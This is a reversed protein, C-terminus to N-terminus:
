KGSKLVKILIILGVLGIGGYLVYKKSICQGGLCYNKVPDCGVCGTNCAEGIISCEDLGVGSVQTCIEGICKNYVEGGGGSCQNANSQKLIGKICSGSSADCIQSYLDVGFCKDNCVIGACKDTGGGTYVITKAWVTPRVFTTATSNVNLHAYKVTLQGLVSDDFLWYGMTDVGVGQGSDCYLSPSGTPSTEQVYIRGSPGGVAIQHNHGCAAGVISPKADIKARISAKDSHSGACLNFFNTHMFVLAPITDSILSWNFVNPRTTCEGGDGCGILALQIGNFTKVVNDSCGSCTGGEHNGALTYVTKSTSIKAKFGAPDYGSPCASLSTCFDGIIVVLSADTKNIADIFKQTAAASSGRFDASTIMSWVAM